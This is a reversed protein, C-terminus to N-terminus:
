QQKCEKQHGAHEQKGRSAAAPSYMPPEPPPPRSVPPPSHVVLAKPARTSFAAAEGGLLWRDQFLGAAAPPDIVLPTFNFLAGEDGLFWSSNTPIWKTREIYEKHAPQLDAIPDDWTVSAVRQAELWAGEAAAAQAAASAELRVFESDSFLFPPPPPAAAAPGQEPEAGEAQALPVEASETCNSLASLLDQIPIKIDLSMSVVPLGQHLFLRFGESSSVNVAITSGAM